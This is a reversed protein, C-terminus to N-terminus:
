GNNRGDEIRKLLFECAERVWEPADEDDVMAELTNVLRELRKEWVPKDGNQKVFDEIDRTTVPLDQELAWELNEELNEEPEGDGALMAKWHSYTFEPYRDKTTRPVARAVRYHHRLTSPDIGASAAVSEVFWRHAKRESGFWDTYGLRMEEWGDLFRYGIEFQYESKSAVLAEMESIFEDPITPPRKAGNREANQANTNKETM